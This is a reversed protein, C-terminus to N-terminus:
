SNDGKLTESKAKYTDLQKGIEEAEAKALALISDAQKKMADVSAKQAEIQLELQKIQVNSSLEGQKLQLEQAKLQLEQQKIQVMPDVPPPPPNQAKELHKDVIQMVSAKNGISSNEYVGRLILWYAPSDAPVTQLLQTLQQQELERAMMGMGSYPVFKYDGAPYKDANFQMQRWMIKNIIPILANREINQMTRKNRKIAGSLMMSMGSATSNRPSVGIPAASDIAGTGMQIMRELEGSQHFTTPNMNGFNFPMLISSPDGNTLIQKGPAVKLNVGRPLRTADAALMPHITLAMGDIRARLEADLAKQPNYGKEAVGRGWFRNPVTDHQYAVIPRDKMTYPTVVAKLLVKDNAYTILAEVLEDDNENNMLGLDISDIELDKGANDLLTKPVLGYYEVIKVKDDPLNDKQEGKISVDMDDIFTGLPTDKYVGANQKKLIEHRPKVMIHACGLAEDVSKASPDIVFNEPPIAEFRVKINDEEIGVMESGSLTDVSTHKTSSVREVIVKGIGTGYIAGNLYMEVISDPVNALEMDEVLLMRIQEADQKQEDRIDDSLDFWLHRGFTGEELESVTAEVAQQLAPNILRSRETQRNKDAATWVGRWLRYYEAWKDRFNANRYDEWNSVKDSVWGVLKKSHVSLAMETNNSEKLPDDHIIQLSM